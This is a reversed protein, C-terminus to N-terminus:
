FDCSFTSPLLSYQKVILVFKFHYCIYPLPRYQTQEKPFSVKTQQGTRIRLSYIKSWCQLSTPSLFSPISHLETCVNRLLIGEERFSAQMIIEIELSRRVFKGREIYLPMFLRLHFMQTCIGASTLYLFEVPSIVHFTIM